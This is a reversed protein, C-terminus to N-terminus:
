SAIQIGFKEQMFRMAEERTIRHRKGIKRPNIARRKIHFGPRELTVAAALGMIKLEPDYEIGPIDIYEPIGFSFNGQTDFNKAPLMNERAKLLRKLLEVAPLKRLTITCGVILGPRINWNPIRKKTVSKMPEIGTIKQLLKIGKKLQEEEKGTGMNLTIKEVRIDRMPNEAM